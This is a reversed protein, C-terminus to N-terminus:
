KKSKENQLPEEESKGKQLSPQNIYMYHLSVIPSKHVCHLGAGNNCM